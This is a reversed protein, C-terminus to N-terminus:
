LSHSLTHREHTVLQSTIESTMSPIAEVTAAADGASSSSVEVNDPEVAESVSVDNETTPSIASSEDATKDLNCSGFLRCGIVDECMVGLLWDCQVSM